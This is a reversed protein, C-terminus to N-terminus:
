PATEQTRGDIWDNLRGAATLYDFWAQWAQNELELGSLATDLSQKLQVLYDSTGLEGARWLKEQLATREQFAAARSNQFSAAATRLAEYRAQAEQLTARARLREGQLRAIAADADARAAEVDARGSNLMPLPVSVSVGIVHDTVPGARVRGGTLSLTPDPIRNRQAVHIAADASAERAQALVVQPLDALARPAMSAESPPFSRPWAPPAIAQTDDALALLAARLAAENGALTAQQIQAEGLALGALDREPSSIDGVQLRQAALDDFRQMLTVRQQGLERQRTALSLASWAKLWQQAVSQRQLDYAAHAVRLEAQGHTARARRKGSVDLTLSLQATRRDVDANEAELALAPNYLPQDAARARAYAADLDARAAQVDPNAMWLARVPERWPASTDPQTSARLVSSFLM